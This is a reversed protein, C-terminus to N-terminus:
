RLNKHNDDNSGMFYLIMVYVIVCVISFKLIYKYDM